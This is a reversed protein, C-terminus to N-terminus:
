RVTITAVGSIARGASKDAPLILRAFGRRDSLPQGDKAYALIARADGLEPDIEGASLVTAYGDSSTVVITHRMVENKSGASVKITAQQILTWLLVGTYSGTLMGKGTRLSVTETTAPERQLASLALSKPHEVAGGISISEARAAKGRSEVPDAAAAAHVLLVALLVCAVAM